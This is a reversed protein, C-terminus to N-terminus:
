LFHKPCHHDRLLPSQVQCSTGTFSLPSRHFLGAPHPPATLPSNQSHAPPGPFCSTHLPFSASTISTKLACKNEFSYFYHPKIGAEWTASVTFFRGVIYSVHIGDRPWSSGRSFPIRWEGSELYGVGTQELFRFLKESQHTELRKIHVLTWQKNKSQWKVHIEHVHKM